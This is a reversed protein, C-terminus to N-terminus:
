SHLDRNKGKRIAAIFAEKRKPFDQMRKRIEEVTLKAREPRTSEDPSPKKKAM